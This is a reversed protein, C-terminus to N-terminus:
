CALHDPLSIGLFGILGVNNAEINRFLIWWHDIDMIYINALYNLFMIIDWYFMMKLSKNKLAIDAYGSSVAGLLLFM